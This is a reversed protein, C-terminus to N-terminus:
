RSTFRLGMGRLSSWAVRAHKTVRVGRDTLLELVIPSGRPKAVATHLFAGGRGVDGTTSRHRVGSGFVHWDVHLARRERREARRGLLSLWRRLLNLSRM